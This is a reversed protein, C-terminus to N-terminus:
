FLREVLEPSKNILYELFDIDSLEDIEYSMDTVYAQVQGGHIL